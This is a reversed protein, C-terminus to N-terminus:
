RTTFGEGADSELRAAQTPEGTDSVRVTRAIAGNPTFGSPLSTDTM